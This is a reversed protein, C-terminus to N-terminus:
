TYKKSILNEHTEQEILMYLGQVEDLWSDWWPMGEGSLSAVLRWTGFSTESWWAIQLQEGIVQLFSACESGM